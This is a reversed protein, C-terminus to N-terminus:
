IQHNGKENMKDKAYSYDAQISKNAGTYIPGHKMNILNVSLMWKILFLQVIMHCCCLAFMDHPYLDLAEPVTSM